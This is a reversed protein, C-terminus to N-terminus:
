PAYRALREDRRRDNVENVVALSNRAVQAIGLAGGLTFLAIVGPGAILLWAAKLQLLVLSAFVSMAGLLVLGWFGLLMALLLLLYRDTLEPAEM